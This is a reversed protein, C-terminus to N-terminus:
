PARRRSSCRNPIVHDLSTILPRAQSELLEHEEESSAVAEGPRNSSPARRPAALARVCRRWLTVSAVLEDPDCAYHAHYDKLKGSFYAVIGALM